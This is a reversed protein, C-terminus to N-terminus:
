DTGDECRRYLTVEHMSQALVYHHKGPEPRNEWHLDPYPLQIPEYSGAAIIAALTDRYPGEKRNVIWDPRLDPTLGHGTLGGLVRLNTYFMLPLEEYNAVILEGPRAHVSLYKVLGETPGEYSNTLEHAYMLLESRFRHAKVWLDDIAILAPSAPQLSSWKIHKMGPLNYPLIHVANTALLVLLLSYGAIANREIVLVVVIALMALLLPILHIVYRFFVTDFFAAAALSLLNIGIVLSALECFATQPQNLALRAKTSRRVWAIFLVVSLVLPFIWVTIYLCFQILHSLSRSWQLEQMHSWVHMFDAWPLVLVMILLFAVLFHRLVRRQVRRILLHM